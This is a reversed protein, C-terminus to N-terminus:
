DASPVIRAGCMTKPESTQLVEITSVFAGINLGRGYAERGLGRTDKRGPIVCWAHPGQPGSATKKADTITAIRHLHNPM